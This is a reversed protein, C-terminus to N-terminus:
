HEYKQYAISAAPKCFGIFCTTSFAHSGKLTIVVVILLIQEDQIFNRRNILHAQEVDFDEGSVALLGM